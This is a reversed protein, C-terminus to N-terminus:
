RKTLRALAELAEKNDPQIQLAIRYAREAEVPFDKAYFNAQGLVLKSYSNLVTSSTAAAPTSALRQAVNNWYTLTGQADSSTVKPKRDGVRLELLPGNPFAGNYTSPLPFSEQMFFALEPNKDMVMNLLRENIAMVAVQGSVQVRGGENKFDEGPRLQKNKSRRDADMLYDNFVSASDQEGPLKITDPYLHSLYELYNKDALANQTIIIRKDDGGTENLLTPVWRGEDTGGIYVGGPPVVGLLENGYNLLEQAPWKNVQEAAGYADLVAARLAAVEPPQQTAEKGFLQDFLSKTKDFDGKEVAAFFSEIEEPVAFGKHKAMARTIELRSRAFYALKGAVIEEPTKALRVPPTPPKVSSILLKMADRNPVSADSLDAPIGSNNSTVFIWALIGAFVLIIGLGWWKQQKNM